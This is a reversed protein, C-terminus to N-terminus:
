LAFGLAHAQRDVAFHRQGCYLYWSGRVRTGEPASVLCVWHAGDEDASRLSPFQSRSDAAAAMVLQASM